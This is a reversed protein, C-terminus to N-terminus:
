EAPGNTSCFIICILAVMVGNVRSRSVWRCVMSYSCGFDQHDGCASSELSDVMAMWLNGGVKATRTQKHM